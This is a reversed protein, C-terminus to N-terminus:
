AEEWLARERWFIESFKKYPREGLSVKYNIFLVANIQRYFTHLPLKLSAWNIENIKYTLGIQISQNNYKPIEYKNYFVLMSYSCTFPVNFFPLKKWLMLRKDWVYLDLKMHWFKLCVWSNEDVNKLRVM